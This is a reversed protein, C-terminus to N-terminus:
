FHYLDNENATCLGLFTAAPDASATAWAVRNVLKLLAFAGGIALGFGPVFSNAVSQRTKSVQEPAIIGAMCPIATFVAAACMMITNIDRDKLTKEMAEAMETIGTTLSILRSVRDTSPVELDDITSHTSESDTDIEKPVPLAENSTLTLTEFDSPDELAMFFPQEDPLFCALLSVHYEKGVYTYIFKIVVTLVRITEDKAMTKPNILWVEYLMSIFPDFWSTKSMNKMVPAILSYDLHFARAMIAWRSNDVTSSVYRCTLFKIRLLEVVKSDCFLADYALYLLALASFVHWGSFLLVAVALAALLKGAHAILFGCIIPSLFIYWRTALEYNASWEFLPSRSFVSEYYLRSMLSRLMSDAAEEDEFEEALHFALEHPEDHDVELEQSMTKANFTYPRNAEVDFHWDEKKKKTTTENPHSIYEVVFKYAAQFFITILPILIINMGTHSRQELPVAAVAPLCMLCITMLVTSQPDLLLPTKLHM